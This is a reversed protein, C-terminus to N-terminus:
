ASPKAAFLTERAAQWEAWCNEPAIDAYGRAQEAKAALGYPLTICNANDRIALVQPETLPEGLTSEAHYLLAVLTPVFVLCLREENESSM